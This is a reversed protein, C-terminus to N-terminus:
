AGAFITVGPGTACHRRWEKNPIECASAATPPPASISGANPRAGTCRVSRCLELYRSFQRRAGIWPRGYHRCWRGASLRPQEGIGRAGTTRWHRAASQCDRCRHGGAGATALRAVSPQSEHRVDRRHQRIVRRRGLASLIRGQAAGSHRRGPRLCPTAGGPRVLGRHIGPRRVTDPGASPSGPLPGAPVALAGM